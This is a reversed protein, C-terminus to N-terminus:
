NLNEGKLRSWNTDLKCLVLWCLFDTGHVSNTQALALFWSWTLTWLGSKFSTLQVNWFATLIEQPGSLIKRDNVFTWGQNLVCFCWLHRMSQSQNGLWFFVPNQIVVLSQKNLSRSSQCKCSLNSFSSNSDEIKRFM